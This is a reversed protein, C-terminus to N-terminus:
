RRKYKFKKIENKKNVTIVRKDILNIFIKKILRMNLEMDEILIVLIERYKWFYKKYFIIKKDIM